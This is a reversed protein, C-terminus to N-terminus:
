REIQYQIMVQDAWQIAQFYWDKLSLMEIGLDQANEAMHDCNGREYCLIVDLIPELPGAHFVLAQYVDEDIEIQRLAEEMTLDLMADILSFLCMLTITHIQNALRSNVAILEGFRSRILAM